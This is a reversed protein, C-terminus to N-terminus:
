SILWVFGAGILDVTGVSRSIISLSPWSVKGLLKNMRGLWTGFSRTAHAFLDQKSYGYVHNCLKKKKTKLSATKCHLKNLCIKCLHGSDYM